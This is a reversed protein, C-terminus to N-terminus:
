NSFNTPYFLVGIDQFYSQMSFTYRSMWCVTWSIQTITLHYVVYFPRMKKFDLEPHFSWTSLFACNIDLRIEMEEMITTCINLKIVTRCKALIFGCHYVILIHNSHYYLWLMCNGFTFTPVVMLPMENEKFLFCVHKM